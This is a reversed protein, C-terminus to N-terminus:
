STKIPPPLHPSLTVPNNSLAIRLKFINDTLFSCFSNALYMVSSVSPLPSPLKRHLLHNVTLWLHRPSISSSSVLNSYYNKKASLVLNHYRNRLSKFSSLDLASHTRKWLNEARRVTSRFARITPIFWLNSKSKRFSLKTIIPTHKDLLSSLITNYAIM